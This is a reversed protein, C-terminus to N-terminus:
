TTEWYRRLPTNDQRGNELGQLHAEYASRVSAPVGHGPIHPPKRSSDEGSASGLFDKSPMHRIDIVDDIFRQAQTNGINPYRDAIGARLMTRDDATFNNEGNTVHAPMMGALAAISSKVTGLQPSVAVSMVQNLTQNEVEATVGRPGRKETQQQQFYDRAALFDNVQHQLVQKVPVQANDVTWSQMHKNIDEASADQLLMRALQEGPQGPLKELQQIVREAAHDLYSHQVNAALSAVAAGVIILGGDSNSGRSQLGLVTKFPQDSYVQDYDYVPELQGLLDGLVAGASGPKHIDQGLAYVYYDAELTKVPAKGQSDGPASYRLRLAPGDNSASPYIDLRDVPVVANQAAEPAFQLQHGDLFFPKTSRIFWSVDAGLEGAREVADIGANPGHIVVTKGAFAEPNKDTARMFEDLDMVKGHLAEQQHLRINDLRKEASTQMGGTDWLSTHPGAGTGLVVQRSELTQGNDLRIQYSGNKLRTIASVEAPLLEAGLTQVQQFQHQNGAAFDERDAYRSDHAPVHQGWQGIIEHQHNVYGRGRVEASWPEQKGIISVKGLLPLNQSDASFRRNLENAVFAASSGKGIVTLERVRHPDLTKGAQGVAQNAAAQSCLHTANTGNLQREHLSKGLLM